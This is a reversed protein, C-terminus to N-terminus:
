LTLRPPLALLTLGLLSLSPGLVVQTLALLALAIAIALGALVRLALRAIAAARPGDSEGGFLASLNTLPDQCLPRACAIDVERDINSSHNWARNTEYSDVRNEDFIVRSETPMEIEYDVVLNNNNVPPM